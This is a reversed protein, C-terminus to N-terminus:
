KKDFTMKGSSKDLATVEFTAPRTKCIDCLMGSM